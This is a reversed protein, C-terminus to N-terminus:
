IRCSWRHQNARKLYQSGQTRSLYKEGPVMELVRAPYLDVNLNVEYTEVMWPNKQQKIDM